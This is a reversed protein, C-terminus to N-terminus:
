ELTIFVMPEDADWFDAPIQTQKMLTNPKAKPERVKKGAQRAADRKAQKARDERDKRTLYTSPPYNEVPRSFNNAGAFDAVAYILCPRRAAEYLEKAKVRADTLTDVQIRDYNQGGAVFGGRQVQVVTFYKAHDITHQNLEEDTWNGMLGPLNSGTM